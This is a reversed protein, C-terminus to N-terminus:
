KEKRWGTPRGRRPREHYPLQQILDNMEQDTDNYIIRLMKRYNKIKDLVAKKEEIRQKLSHSSLLILNSM